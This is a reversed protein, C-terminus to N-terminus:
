QQKHQQVGSLFYRLERDQDPTQHDNELAAAALDLGRQQNTRSTSHVQFCVARRHKEFCVVLKTTPWEHVGAAARSAHLSHRRAHLPKTNQWSRDVTCHMSTSAKSKCAGAAIALRPVTASCVPPGGSCLCHLLQQEFASVLGWIFRCLMCAYAFSTKNTVNYVNHEDFLGSFTWLVPCYWSMSMCVVLLLHWRHVGVQM